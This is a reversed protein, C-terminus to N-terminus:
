PVVNVGGQPFKRSNEQNEDEEQYQLNNNEVDNALSARTTALISLCKDKCLTVNVDDIYFKALSVLGAEIDIKLIEEGFSTDLSIIDTVFNVTVEIASCVHARSDSSFSRQVGTLFRRNDHALRPLVSNNEDDM